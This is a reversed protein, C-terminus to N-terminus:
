IDIVTEMVGGVAAVEAVERQLIARKEAFEPTDPIAPPQELLIELLIRMLDDTTMRGDSLGILEEPAVERAPAPAPVGAQLEKEMRKLMAKGIPQETPSIYQDFDNAM